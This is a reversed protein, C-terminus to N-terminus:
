SSQELMEKALTKSLEVGPQGYPDIRYLKGLLIVEAMFLYFLQGLHYEDLRTISITVHARKAATLGQSTGEYFADLISGFTKGEILKFAPDIGHPVSLREREVERIFLHWCKHPGQMWQQLLSHQDQTGIAAIPFPNQDNKGLSEAILQQNWRGMSALREGYPMIVRLSYGKKTDLLFQVAALIAAPNDDMVDHNCQMEMDLIGKLFKDIDGGLLAIPLLGVPTFVSYRGGVDPPIPLLEIDKDVCYSRLPGRVPDTIGICYQNYKAGRAKKVSELFFFFASMTELTNGSKSVGILMANKWDIRKELQILASPDITDVVIFQPTDVTQLAEQIVKPGLASGGIGAWVITKIKQKKAREALDKVRRIVSDNYPDRTWGHRGEQCESKWETIYRKMSNRMTLLEQDAIGLNPTLIRALVASIDVRLM